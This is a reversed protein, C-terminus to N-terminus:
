DQSRIPLPRSVHESKRIATISEGRHGQAIFDLGEGRPEGPVEFGDHAASRYGCNLGREPCWLASM